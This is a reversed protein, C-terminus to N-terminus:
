TNMVQTDSEALQEDMKSKVWGNMDPGRERWGGAQEGLSCGERSKFAVEPNM